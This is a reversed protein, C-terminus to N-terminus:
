PEYIRIQNRGTEKAEYMAADAWRLIDDQIGEHDFFLAVGISASCHHEITTDAHEGLSSSLLYPESLRARIKEAIAGAQLISDSKGAHLDSLLVVFEDGGFRAVTDIERVCGRIRHAAEILLLDGVAHGCSDNLPKFNDLDLFMLAGYRGSRRSAAIAQSLREDLLRRNPLTTLTDYFALQQVQQEMKKRESINLGTGRLGIVTGDKDYIPVGNVEEWAVTGTKGIDRHQLRFAAHNAVAQNVIEGVSAIDEEPMFEMPTHGLLEEPPYGKVEAARSSVYTYVMNTDLEWLYEGAAESVDRFRQESYRLKEEAIRRETIDIFVWLSESTAPNLIAGSMEVTIVRGDRRLHELQTRYIGGENLIPYATMGLADYSEDSVFNNRTPTGNLEGKDYGLMKEFAPNAWVIVRNKVRVIGVLDNELMAKQENLLTQIRAENHFQVSIDEYIGLIGVITGHQNKLPVKSTKLWITTGDPATQPEVYFLKAIGSDMVARDDARYQEAQAAWGMQTDEKGILEEPCSMGADQAFITNCGLFRLNQDKWFIRVPATDIITMLLNHSEIIATQQARRETIDHLISRSHLINGNKDCVASANLNVDVRSGDKCRLLLEVNHLSKSAMFTQFAARSQEACDPHYIMQVPSGILEDRTYGTVDLVTKNCDIILATNGEVSLFMDPANDYLDRYKKEAQEREVHRRYLFYVMICLLLAVAAFLYKLLAKLNVQESEYVAFWKNYLADYNGNSKTLALGENIRGLLESQGEAVAFSFKQSFGANVRLAEINGIGQARLTQMGTLKSLLMADHRGSALLRLGEAATDVLVLHNGWGRSVAYDHALDANLVILTKDSLDDESRIRQDNRRVFIAGHVIVHPVTFDAFHHREDSQALNILVDIKGEKFEQLLERFPRVRIQYKLGAEAAVAKWLDVTFGGAEDDNMGTALPPFDQESGVILTDKQLQQVTPRKLAAPNAEPLALVAQNALLSFLVTLAFRSLFRQLVQINCLLRLPRPHIRSAPLRFQGPQCHNLPTRNVIPEAILYIIGLSLFFITNM